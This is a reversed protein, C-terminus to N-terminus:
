EKRANRYEQVVSDSTVPGLAAYGAPTLHWGNRWEILGKDAASKFDEHYLQPPKYPSTFRERCWCRLLVNREPTM